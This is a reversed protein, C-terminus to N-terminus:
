MLLPVMVFSLMMGFSYSSINTVLALLVSDHLNIRRKNLLYILGVEILFTLIWIIYSQAIYRPLLFWTAPLTLINAIVVAKMISFPKKMVALFALAALIELIFSSVVSFITDLKLMESVTNSSEKFSIKLDDGNIDVTYKSFIKEHVKFVNSERQVGDSFMVFLKAYPKFDYTVAHCTDRDCYLKQMGYHGLPESKDCLADACVILESYEPVIQLKESNKNTFIFDIEPKPSFDAHACVAATMLLLFLIKKM